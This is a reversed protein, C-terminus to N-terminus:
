TPPLRGTELDAEDFTERYLEGELDKKVTTVAKKRLIHKMPKDQAAATTKVNDQSSIHNETSEMQQQTKVYEMILGENLYYVKYSLYGTVALLALTVVAIAAGLASLM